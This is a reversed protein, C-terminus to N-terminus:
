NALGGLGNHIKAGDEGRWKGCAENQGAVGPQEGQTGRRGGARREAECCAGWRDVGMWSLRDSKISASRRQTIERRQFIKWRESM